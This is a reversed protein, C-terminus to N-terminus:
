YSGVREHQERRKKANRLPYLLDSTMDRGCHHNQNAGFQVHAVRRFNNLVQSLLVLERDGGFLSLLELLDDTRRGVNLTGRLGLVANGRQQFLGCLFDALDFGALLTVLTGDHSGWFGELVFSKLQTFLKCKCTCKIEKKVIANRCVLGLAEYKLPEGNCQKCRQWLGHM